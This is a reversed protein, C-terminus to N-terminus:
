ASTVFYLLCVVCAPVSRWVSNLSTHCSGTVGASHMAPHTVHFRHVPAWAQRSPRASRKVCGPVHWCTMSRTAYSKDQFDHVAILM